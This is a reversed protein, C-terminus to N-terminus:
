EARHFRELWYQAYLGDSSSRERCEFYKKEITEENWASVEAWNDVIIMPLGISKFYRNMPNNEVIPVCNMYMAEWTRHCDPGNGPPSAILMYEKVRLRYLRSNLPQELEDAAECANMYRYCELRKNINTKLNFAYAIRPKIPRNKSLRKFDSFVGNNHRWRDELGIPLPHVKPHELMCNQAFWAIVMPHDAMWSYRNDINEDGQHSVLVFKGAVKPLVREGFERLRKAGVFVITGDSISAPDCDSTEDFHVDAISRFTDGSLFPASSPRRGLAKNIRSCLIREVEFPINRLLLSMRM